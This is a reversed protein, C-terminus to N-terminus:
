FYRCVPDRREMGCANDGNPDKDDIEQIAGVTTEQKGRGGPRGLEIGAGFLWQNPRGLDCIQDSKKKKKKLIQDNQLM